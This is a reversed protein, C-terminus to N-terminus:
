WWCFIHRNLATDQKHALPWQASANSSDSFGGQSGCSFTPSSAISSGEYNEDDRSTDITMGLSGIKKGVASPVKNSDDGGSSFSCPDISLRGFFNLYESSSDSHRSFLCVQPVPIVIDVTQLHKFGEAESRGNSCLYIVLLVQIEVACAQKSHIAGLSEFAPIASLLAISQGWQESCVSINHSCVRMDCVYRCCQQIARALLVSGSSYNALLYQAFKVDISLSSCVVCSESRIPKRVAANELLNLMPIRMLCDVIRSSHEHWGFPDFLLVWGVASRKCHYCVSINTMVANAIIQDTESMSGDTTTPASSPLSYNIELANAYFEDASLIEVLGFKDLEVMINPVPLAHDKGCFILLSHYPGLVCLGVLSNQHYHTKLRLLNFLTQEDQDQNICVATRAIVAVWRVM